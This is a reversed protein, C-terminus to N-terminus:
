PKVEIVRVIEGCPLYPGNVPYIRSDGAGELTWERLKDSGLDVSHAVPEGFTEQIWAAFALAQSPSLPVGGRLYILNGVANVAAVHDGMRDVGLRFEPRHNNEAAKVREAYESARSM